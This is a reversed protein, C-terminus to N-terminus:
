RRFVVPQVADLAEWVPRNIALRGDEFPRISTANGDETQLRWVFGPSGDALANIPDLQSRFGEMIPDDIPARLRGINLQALHFRPVEARKKGHQVLAIGRGAAIRPSLRSAPGAPLAK